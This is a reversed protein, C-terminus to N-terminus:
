PQTLVFEAAWRVNNEKGNEDVTAFIEVFYVGPLVTPGNPWVTVNNELPWNNCPGNGGLICYASTVEIVSYIEAGNDDKGGQRVSFSVQMVDDEQTLEKGNKFIKFELFSEDTLIVECQYDEKPGCGGEPDSTQASKPLPPPPPPVFEVVPLSTLDMNCTIYQAGATVWGGPNDGDAEIKVWSGGPIGEPVFGVPEIVSDKLVVGIPNRYALGPGTRLNIDQLTTCQM